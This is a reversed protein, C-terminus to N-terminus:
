FDPSFTEALRKAYTDYTKQDAPSLAPITSILGYRRLIALMRPHQSINTDRSGLAELAFRDSPPRIITSLVKDLSDRAFDKYGTDNTITRSALEINQINEPQSTAFESKLLIVFNRVRQQLRQQQQEEREEKSLMEVWDTSSPTKNPDIM